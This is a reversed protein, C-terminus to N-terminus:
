LGREKQVLENVRVIDFMGGRLMFDMPSTNALDKHPRRLWDLEARVSNDFLAGLGISISLVYGTRDEVDRSARARGLLIPQALLENGSYGLLVIQQARTLGWRECTRTFGEVVGKRTVPRNLTQTEAWPRLFAINQMGPHADAGAGLGQDVAEGQEINSPVLGTNNNALPM